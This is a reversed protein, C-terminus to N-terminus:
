YASLCNLDPEDFFFDSVLKFIAFFTALLTSSKFYYIWLSWIYIEGTLFASSTSLLWGNLVSIFFFRWLSTGCIGDIWFLLVPLLCGNSSAATAVL